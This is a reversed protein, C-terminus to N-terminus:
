SRVKPEPRDKAPGDSQLCRDHVPKPGDPTNVMRYLQGPTIWLHCRTCIYPAETTMM